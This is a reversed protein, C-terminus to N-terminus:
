KDTDKKLGARIRSLSQPTVGIYGAIEKLPVHLFIEPMKKMFTLYRNEAKPTWMDILADDTALIIDIFLGQLWNMFAPSSVSLKQIVSKKMEIAITDSSSSITYRCPLGRIYGWSSIIVDGPIAFWLTQEEGDRGIHARCVGKRIFYASDDIKGEGILASGKPFHLTRLTQRLLILEDENLKCQENIQDIFAEM